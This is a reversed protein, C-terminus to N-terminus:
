RFVQRVISGSVDSGNAPKCVKYDPFALSPVCTDGPRCHIDASCYCKMKPRCCHSLSPFAAVSVCDAHMCLCPSVCLMLCAAVHWSGLM